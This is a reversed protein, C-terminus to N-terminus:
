PTIVVPGHPGYDFALTPLPFQFTLHIFGALALLLCVFVPEYVQAKGWQVILVHRRQKAAASIAFSHGFHEVADFEVQRQVIQQFPCRRFFRTRGRDFVIWRFGPWDLRIWGIKGVAM